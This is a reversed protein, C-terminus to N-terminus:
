PAPNQKALSFGNFINLPLQRKQLFRSSCLTTLRGFHGDYVTEVNAWKQWIMISTALLLLLVLLDGLGRIVM